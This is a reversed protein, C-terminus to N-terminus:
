KQKLLNEFIKYHEDAMKEITYQKIKNLNNKSMANRLLDDDLICCVKNEIEKCDLEIIYGNKGDEILEVGAVCEHTTIVPLGCAMAENIVLGWIDYRTPFVFLDAAIYYKLLEEFKIFELIKVNKLKNKDIQSIYNDKEPGGGIIYLQYKDDMNAWSEILVDIGKRHIFSAVTIVMLKNEIGLSEKIDNKEQVTISNELIQKDTLSTFPYRFIKEKKAGYKIFYEDTLKSTSFWGKASSILSKKFKEKFGSGSKAIGGDAEIYFDINNKKMTYIAFIGTLTSYNGVIIFDYKGNLLYKKVDTCLIKNFIKRSKLFVPKFNDYNTNFWDKNRHTQKDINEEFLVTLNCLKGLENFFQVRYPSPYNTIFLINM